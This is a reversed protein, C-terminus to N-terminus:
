RQDRSGPISRVASGTPPKGSDRRRTMSPPESTSAGLLVRALVILDSFEFIFPFARAHNFLRRHTIMQIFNSTGSNCPPHLFRRPKDSFTHQASRLVQDNDDVSYPIRPNLVGLVPWLEPHGRPMALIM